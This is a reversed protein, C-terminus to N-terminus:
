IPWEDIFRNGSQMGIIDLENVLCKDLGATIKEKDMDMGIFVLETMRDGWRKHWKAQIEEQNELYSPNMAREKMSVSAWWRGYIEAKM